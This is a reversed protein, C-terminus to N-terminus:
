TDWNCHERKRKALGEPKFQLAEGLQSDVTRLTQMAADVRGGAAAMQELLEELPRQYRNGYQETATFAIDKSFGKSIFYLLSVTVTLLVLGGVAGIRQGRTMVKM